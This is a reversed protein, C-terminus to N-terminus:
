NSAPQSVLETDLISGPDLRHLAPRPEGTKSLLDRLPGPPVDADVIHHPLGVRHPDKGRMVAHHAGRHGYAELHPRVLPYPILYPTKDDQRLAIVFDVVPVAMPICEGWVVATQVQTPVANRVFVMITPVFCTLNDVTGLERQYDARARNWSWVATNTTAPLTAHVAPDGARVAERAALRNGASWSQVLADARFASPREGASPDAVTLGFRDVVARLEEAAEHVAFSPRLYPLDVQALHPGGSRLSLTFSVGSTANDYVAHADDVRWHARDELFGSLDAGATGHLFLDHSVTADHRSVPRTQM